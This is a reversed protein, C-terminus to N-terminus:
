HTTVSNRDIAQALGELGDRLRAAKATLPETDGRDAEGLKAAHAELEDHLARATAGLEAVLTALDTPARGNRGDQSLLEAELRAIGPETLSAIIVMYDDTMGGAFHLPTAKDAFVVDLRWGFTADQERLTALFRAADESSSSAVLSALPTGKDIGLSLNLDDRLVELIRGRGDCLWASGGTRIGGSM